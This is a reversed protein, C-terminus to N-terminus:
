IITGGVGAAAARAVSDVGLPGLLSDGGDVVVLTGTDDGGEIASILGINFANRQVFRNLASTLQIILQLSSM